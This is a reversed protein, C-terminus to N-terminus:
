TDYLRLGWPLFSSPAKMISHAVRLLCVCDLLTRSTAAVPVRAPSTSLKPCVQGNQPRFAVSSPHVSHM